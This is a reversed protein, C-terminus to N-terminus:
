VNRTETSNGAMNNLKDDSLLVNNEQERLLNHDM